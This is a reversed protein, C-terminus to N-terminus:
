GDTFKTKKKRSVFTYFIILGANNKKSKKTGMYICKQRFLMVTTGGSFINILNIKNTM